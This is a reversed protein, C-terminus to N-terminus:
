CRLHYSVAPVIYQDSTPSTAHMKKSAFSQNNTSVASNKMKTNMADHHAMTVIIDPPDVTAEKIAAESHIAMTMEVIDPPDVVGINIEKTGFLRENENVALAVIDPPDVAMIKKPADVPISNITALNKQQVVRIVAIDPPSYLLEPNLMQIQMSKNQNEAKKTCSTNNSYTMNIMVVVLFLGLLSKLKM